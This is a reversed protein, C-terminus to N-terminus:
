KEETARINVKYSQIMNNQNSTGLAKQKLNKIPVATTKKDHAVVAEIKRPMTRKNQDLHSHSNNETLGKFSKNSNTSTLKNNSKHNPPQIRGAKVSSEMSNTTTSTISSKLKNNNYGSSASKKLRGGTDSSNSTSRKTSGLNTKMM